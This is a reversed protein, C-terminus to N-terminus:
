ASAAVSLRYSQDVRVAQRATDLVAEILDENKNIKIYHEFSEWAKAQKAMYAYTEAEAPSLQAILMWSSKDKEMDEGKIANMLLAKTAGDTGLTDIIEEITIRDYEGLYISALMAKASKSLEYTQKVKVEDDYAAGFIQYLFDPHMVKLTEAKTVKVANGRSGKLVVTKGGDTDFVQAARKTISAQLEKKVENLKDADAKVQCFADVENILAREMQMEEIYAEKSM